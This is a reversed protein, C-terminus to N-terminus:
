IMSRVLFSVTVGLITAPQNVNPLNANDPHEKPDQLLPTDNSM